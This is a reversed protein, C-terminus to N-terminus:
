KDNKDGDKQSSKDGNNSSQNVYFDSHNQAIELAKEKDCSWIQCLTEIKVKGDKDPSFTKVYTPQELFHQKLFIM